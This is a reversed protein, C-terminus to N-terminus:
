IYIFYEVNSFKDGYYPSEFSFKFLPLKHFGYLNFSWDETRAFPYHGCCSASTEDARCEIRCRFGNLFYDFMGESLRAFDAVLYPSKGLHEFPYISSYGLFLLLIVVYVMLVIFVIM